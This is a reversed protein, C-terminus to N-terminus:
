RFYCQSFGLNGEGIKM